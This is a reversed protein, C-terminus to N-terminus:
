IKQDTAMSRIIEAITSVDKMEIEHGLTFYTEVENRRFYIQGNRGRRAMIEMREVANALQELSLGYVVCVEEPTLVNKGTAAIVTQLREMDEVKYAM